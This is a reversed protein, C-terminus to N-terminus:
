KRLPPFSSPALSADHLHIGLEHQGRQNHIPNDALVQDINTPPQLSRAAVFAVHGDEYFVNIGRGEHAVLRELRGSGVAEEIIPADALIAFQSRGQYKPARPSGQESVGLNYAYDGGIVHQWWQLEDLALRHLEALSPIADTGVISPSAARVASSATPLGLLSACNLQRSEIPLGAHRLRMAFVGAFSEPGDVAVPPFRGSPDNLAYNVLEKGTLGLNRACQARRAEFRVRVLAPLALCCLIALCATLVGSDWPVRRRALREGAPSLLHCGAVQDIRALTSDVLDSPPEFIGALSDIQGLVHRLQSLRELLEAQQPLHQQLRAALEPSADGLLYAILEEDSFPM